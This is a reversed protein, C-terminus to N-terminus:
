EVQEKSVESINKIVITSGDGLLIRFQVTQLKNIAKNQHRLRGTTELGTKIFKISIGFHLM